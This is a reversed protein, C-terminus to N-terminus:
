AVAYMRMALEVPNDLRACGSNSMDALAHCREDWIMGGMKTTRGRAHLKLLILLM